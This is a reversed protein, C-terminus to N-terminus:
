DRLLKQVAAKADSIKAMLVTLEKQAADRAALMKDRAAAAQAADRGVQERIKASHADIDDKVRSAYDRADAQHAAAKAEANAVMDATAGSMQKANATLSDCIKSAKEIEVRIAALRVKAENGAQEISAVDKLATAIVQLGGFQTALLQAAEAAKSFESM